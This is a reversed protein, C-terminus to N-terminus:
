NICCATSNDVSVTGFGGFNMSKSVFCNIEVRFLPRVFSRLGSKSECFDLSYADLLICCMLGINFLNFFKQSLVM